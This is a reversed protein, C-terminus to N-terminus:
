AFQCDRDGWWDSPPPSPATAHGRADRGVLAQSVDPPNDRFTPQSDAIAPPRERGRAEVLLAERELEVQRLAEDRRTAADRDYTAPKHPAGVTAIEFIRGDQRSTFLVPTAWEATDATSIAIRAEAVAADIPMGRALARYLFSSFEVAAQDSIEYQMALVAPVGRLVLSAATSSFLDHESSRAGECANLIVLTLSSHGTLLRALGSASVMHRRGQRDALAVKGERSIPDFEGHGIFHLVHWPGSGPLM